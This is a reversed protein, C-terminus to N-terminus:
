AKKDFRYETPSMGTKEKFVRNFSAISNFGVEFGIVTVQEDPEARLRAKAEEIRYQNVLENFNKSFHHNIVRSLAYESIGIKKALAARNLRMERYIKEQGLLTKITEVHPLDLVPNYASAQAVRLVEGVLNPYFVRFLSTIVLYIFTLRLITTSFATDSGSIYDAVRLLDILLIFLHLSILSIILWYKHKRESQEGSVHGFRSSYIMLLLFMLSSSFLHYLVKVTQVDPCAENKCIDSTSITSAYLIMGGGVIPVFLVLWYPWAPIRGMLFQCILLFSLAVLLSEGMLLGGHVWINDQLAPYLELLPLAFGCSLSLFYLVPIISQRTHWAISLLFAVIFVSPVLGVLQLAQNLTFIAEESFFSAKM